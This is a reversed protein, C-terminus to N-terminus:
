GSGASGGGSFNFKLVLLPSVILRLPFDFQARM